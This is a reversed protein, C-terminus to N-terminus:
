RQKALQKRLNTKFLTIFTTNVEKTTYGFYDFLTPTKPKTKAYNFLLELGGQKGKVRYIGEPRLRTANKGSKGPISFYRFANGKVKQGSAFKELGKKTQTYQSPKMNGYANRQVASSDMAPIPYYNRPINLGSRNRLWYSFRTEYNPKLGGLTGTTPFLYKQPKNSKSVTQEIFFRVSPNSSNYDFRSSSTTFPVPNEFVKKMLAPIKKKAHIQGFKFMTNRKAQPIAAKEIFKLNRTFKNIDVELRLVMISVKALVLHIKAYIRMGALVSVPHEM